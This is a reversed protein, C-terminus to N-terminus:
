SRRFLTTEVCGRLDLGHLCAVGPQGEDDQEGDVAGGPAIENRRCGQGTVPFRVAGSGAVPGHREAGRHILKGDQEREGAESGWRFRRSAYRPRGMDVESVGTDLARDEEGEDLGVGVIERDTDSGTRITRGQRRGTENGVRRVADVREGLRHARDLCSLGIEVDM